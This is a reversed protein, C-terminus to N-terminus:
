RRDLGRTYDEELEELFPYDMEVAVKAVIYWPDIDGCCLSCLPSSFFYAISSTNMSGEKDRTLRSYTKYKKDKKMCKRLDKAAKEVIGNGLLRCYDAQNIHNEPGNEVKIAGTSHLGELM